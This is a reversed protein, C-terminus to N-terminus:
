AEEARPGLAMLLFALELGVGIALKLSAAVHPSPSVLSEVVALLVFWPLCGLLTVLANRAADAVAAARPRDEAAVLSRGLELGAAATVLILTIELLGHASVFELLAGAMGYRATVGVIAGLHFGNLLIVYFSGLGALAGGAWGFLAVAINNTAIGSSALEPPVTTVLSRTWLQGRELDSVATPGLLALGTAPQVLAVSGGFAAALGFLALALALHPLLRRFARPFAQRLFAAPGPLREERSAQLWHTGDLALLELRRAAGTGAYRSAALAHDHLVQRYRIALAELQEHGVSRPSRRFASLGSEFEDWLPARLALFRAYDM